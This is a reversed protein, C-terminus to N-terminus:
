EHDLKKNGFGGDYLVTKRMAHSACAKCTAKAMTAATQEQFSMILKLRCHTM